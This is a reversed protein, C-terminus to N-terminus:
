EQAPAPRAPRLRILVSLGLAGAPVLTVLAPLQYRWSFEFLDSCWCCPWGPCSSCCAPWAQGRSRPDARRRLLALRGPWAPWRACPWCRAPRTAATSSTPRAPVRRGAALRRAHRRRVPEIATHVFAERTAHSTYYPFEDPVALPLDAHRRAPGDRTLAFLKVVDRGYAGLLREPQQICCGTTSTPLDPQRGADRPLDPLVAPDALGASYELWDPGQAQQAPTPCMGREAAPLRLTACDAAAATRGYFSTVGTHSLSFRRQTM